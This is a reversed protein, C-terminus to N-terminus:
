TELVTLLGKTLRENAERSREQGAKAKVLAVYHEGERISCGPGGERRSVEDSSLDRQVGSQEKRGGV